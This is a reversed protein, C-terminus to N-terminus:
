RHRVTTANGSEFFGVDTVGTFNTGPSTSRSRRVPPAHRRPLLEAHGVDAHRREDRRTRLAHRDASQGNNPQQLTQAGYDCGTFAYFPLVSLKPSRIEVTSVGNVDADNIGM